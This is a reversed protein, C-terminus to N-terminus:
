KVPIMTTAARDELNKLAGLTTFVDLSTPAEAGTGGSYFDPMDITVDKLAPYMVQAIDREIEAMYIDKASQKASLKALEVDAEALGKERIAMGEFKAAQAAAEQIGRNAEAIALEKEKQIVAVDKEKQQKVLEQLAQQREVEVRQQGQITALEKEKQADQIAKQKDIEREQKAAEAKVRNTDIEQQATIKEGVSQRKRDLLSELQSDATPKGITVQTVQIGYEAM